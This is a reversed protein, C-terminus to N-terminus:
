DWSLYSHAGHPFMNIASIIDCPKQIVEFEGDIREITLNVGQDDEPLYSKGDRLSSM